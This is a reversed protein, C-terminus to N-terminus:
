EVLVVTHGQEKIEFGFEKLSKEQDRSNAEIETYINKLMFTNRKM